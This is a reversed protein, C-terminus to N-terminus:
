YCKEKKISKIGKLRNFKQIIPIIKNLLYFTLSAYLSHILLVDFIGAGGIANSFIFGTKHYVFYIDAILESFFTGIFAIPTYFNFDKKWLGMWALYLASFYNQVYLEESKNGGYINIEVSSTAISLISGAIFVIIIPSNLKLYRITDYKCILLISILFPLYFGIKNDLLFDLNYKFLLEFDFGM